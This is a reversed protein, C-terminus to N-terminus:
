LEPLDKTPPLSNFARALRLIADRDQKQYDLIYIQSLTPPLLITSVESSALVPLIPKSLTAAYSWEHKCATSDLAEPTLVLVLVNCDRIRSLIQDWWAQGGSLEQDFWVIHGLAKIDSVLAGVVAENKRNYSIFINLM